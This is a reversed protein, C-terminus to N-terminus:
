TSLTSIPVPPTALAVEASTANLTSLEAGRPGSVTSHLLTPPPTKWGRRKGHGSTRRPAVGTATSNRTVSSAEALWRREAM